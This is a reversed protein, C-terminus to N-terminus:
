KVRSNLSGLPRHRPTNQEGSYGWCKSRHRSRHLYPTLLHLFSNESAGGSDTSSNMGEHRLPPGCYGGAWGGGDAFGGWSWEVRM